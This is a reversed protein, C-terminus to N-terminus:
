PVVWKGSAADPLSPLWTVDLIYLAVCTTDCPSLDPMLVHGHNMDSCSTNSEFPCPAADPFITIM